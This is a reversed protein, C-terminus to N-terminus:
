IKYFLFAPCKFKNYKISFANPNSNCEKTEMGEFYHCLRMFFIM